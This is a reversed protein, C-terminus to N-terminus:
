HSLIILIEDTFNGEETEGQYYDDYIKAMLQDGDMYIEELWGRFADSVYITSNHYMFVYYLKIPYMDSYESIELYCSNPVKKSKVIRDVSTYELPLTLEKSIWPFGSLPFGAPKGIFKNKKFDFFIVQILREGGGKFNSNEEIDTEFNIEEELMARYDGKNESIFITFTIAAVENDLDAIKCTYLPINAPQNWVKTEIFETNKVKMREYNPFLADFVHFIRSDVSTQGFVVSSYLMLLFCIKKMGEEVKAFCITEM